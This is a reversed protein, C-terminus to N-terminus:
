DFAWQGFRCGGDAVRIFDALVVITFKLDQFNAIVEM